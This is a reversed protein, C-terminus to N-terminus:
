ARAQGPAPRAHHRYAWAGLTILAAVTLTVTVLITKIM